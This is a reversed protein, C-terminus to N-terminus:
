EDNLTLIGISGEMVTTQDKVQIFEDHQDLVPLHRAQGNVTALPGNFRKWFPM